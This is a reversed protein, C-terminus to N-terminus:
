TSKTLRVKTQALVTWQRCKPYQVDRQRREREGMRQRQTHKTSEPESEIEFAIFVYIHKKFYHM